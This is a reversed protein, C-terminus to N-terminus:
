AEKAILIANILGHQGPRSTVRAQGLETDILAGRTIIKRRAFDTNAQNELVDRIEVNKATNTTPDLVNALQTRQLRIKRNGGMTRTIKKKEPGFLTEAPPRGLEFKQKKRFSKYRGGTSKRRSKGQWKVMRERVEM